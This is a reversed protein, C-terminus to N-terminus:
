NQKKTWSELRYKIILTLTFRELRLIIDILIFSPKQFPVNVVIAVVVFIM